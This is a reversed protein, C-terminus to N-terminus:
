FIYRRARTTVSLAIFGGIFYITGLGFLMCACFWIEFVDARYERLISDGAVNQIITGQLENRLLAIYAYFVPSLYQVWRIVWSTDLRNQIQNGGFMFIILFVLISLIDRVQRTKASCSILFGLGMVAYIELLLIAMFILFKDFGSRLGTIYYIIFAYIITTILNIPIESVIKALYISSIRYTYALREREIISRSYGVAPVLMALVLSAQNVTIFILLGFRIRLGYKFPYNQIQFYIFSLVTFILIRQLVNLIIPPYDRYQGILERKVLCKFECFMDNPWDKSSENPIPQLYSRPEHFFLHRYIIWKSRLHNRLRDLDDHFDSTESLKLTVINIFYDSFNQYRTFVFQGFTQFYWLADQVKGYFVTQGHCLLMIKSFMHYINMRTPSITIIVISKTIRVYNYIDEILSEERRPDLGITPEDLFLVDPHNVTHIAIAVRKRFGISLMENDVHEIYVDKLKDLKWFKMIERVRDNLEM